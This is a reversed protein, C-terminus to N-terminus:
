VLCRPFLSEVYFIDTLVKGKCYHYFFNFNQQTWGPLFWPNRKKCNLGRKLWDVGVLGLLTASM